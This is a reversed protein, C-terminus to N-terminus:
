STGVAALEDLYDSQKDQKNSQKRAANTNGRKMQANIQDYKERLKKGSLINAAWFMDGTYIWDILEMLEQGTREDIRIALDIDKIWANPKPKATPTFEKIKNALYEAVAVVTEKETNVLNIDTNVQAPNERNPNKGILTKGSTPTKETAEDPNERNPTKGNQPTDFIHWDVSGDGKRQMVVYGAARLSKLMNRIADEGAKRQKVLHAISVEWEDPKSLLYVFLGLEKWDLSLDNLILNPIVTFNQTRKSRIIM